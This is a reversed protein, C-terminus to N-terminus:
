NEGSRESLQRQDTLDELEHPFPNFTEPLYIGGSTKILGWGEWLIDPFPDQVIGEKHSAGDDEKAVTTPHLEDSNSRQIPAPEQVALVQPISEETTQPREVRGSAVPNSKNPARVGGCPESSAPGDWAAPSDGLWQDDNTQQSACPKAQGRSATAPARLPAPCSVPASEELQVRRSSPRMHPPTPERPPNVPLDAFLAATEKAQTELLGPTISGTRNQRWRRDPVPYQVDVVTRTHGDSLPPPCTERTTDM